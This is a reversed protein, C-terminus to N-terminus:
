HLLLVLLRKSFKQELPPEWNAIKGDENCNYWYADTSRDGTLAWEIYQRIAFSNNLGSPVDIYNCWKRNHRLWASLRGAFCSGMALIMSKSTWIPIDPGFGKFIYENAILSIDDFLDPKKPNPFSHLIEGYHWSAGGTETRFKAVSTFGKSM